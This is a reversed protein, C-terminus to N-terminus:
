ARAICDIEIRAGRPLAAVAVTSRAPKALGFHKEYVANVAAFDNMDVLYLTTKVVEAFTYGAACLVAGLNEIAREAQAAVDGSVIEGTHPDIPIQGSCYLEHGSLIAQSYPGIPKPAHQTLVSEHKSM